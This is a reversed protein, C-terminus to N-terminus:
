KKKKITLKKQRKAVTATKLPKFSRRHIPSPGHKALAKRHAETGYGKHIKFGYQPYLRHEGDMLTDRVVKAVISAAAISLSIADGHVIAKVPMKGLKIRVADVLVANPKVHLRAVAQALAKHNANTIGHKDIEDAPVVSVAWSVAHRAIHVFLKERQKASLVKSDNINKPAFTDDIIVAGAVLPGAWAGKGVEDVGAVFKKGAEHLRSEERRHPKTKPM